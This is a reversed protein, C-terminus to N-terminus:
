IVHGTAIFDELTPVERMAIIVADCENCTLVRGSTDLADNAGTASEIAVIREDNATVANLRDHLETGVPRTSWHWAQLVDQSLECQMRTVDGIVLKNEFVRLLTFVFDDLWDIFGVLTFRLVRPKAAGQRHLKLTNAM